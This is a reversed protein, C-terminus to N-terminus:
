HNSKRDQIDLIYLALMGAASAVTVEKGASALTPICSLHGILWIFVSAFLVTYRLLINKLDEAASLGSNHNTEKEM